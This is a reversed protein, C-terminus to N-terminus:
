QYQDNNSIIQGTEKQMEEFKASLKEKFEKVSLNMDNKIFPDSTSLFILFSIHLISFATLSKPIWYQTKACPYNRFFFLFVALETLLAIVTLFISAIFFPIWPPILGINIFFLDLFFVGTTIITMFRMLLVASISKKFGAKTLFMVIALTLLLFILQQLM